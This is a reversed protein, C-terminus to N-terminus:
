RFGRVGSRPAQPSIVTHLWEKTCARGPRSAFSLYDYINPLGMM